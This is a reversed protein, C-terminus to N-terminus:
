NDNKQIGHSSRLTASWQILLRLSEISLVTAVSVTLHVLIGNARDCRDRCRLDEVANFKCFTCAHLVRSEIDNGGYPINSCGLLFLAIGGFAHHGFFALTFIPRRDLDYINM